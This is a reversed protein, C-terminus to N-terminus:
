FTWTHVNQPFKILYRKVSLLIFSGINTAMIFGALLDVSHEQSSVTLHQQINLDINAEQYDLDAHTLASEASMNMLRLFTAHKLILIVAKLFILYVRFIIFHFYWPDFSSAPSPWSHHHHAPFAFIMFWLSLHNSSSSWVTQISPLAMIQM